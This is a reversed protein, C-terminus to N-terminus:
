ALIAPVATDFLSFIKFPSDFKTEKNKNAPRHVGERVWIVVAPASQVNRLIGHTAPPSARWLRQVFPLLDDQSYTKLLPSFHQNRSAPTGEKEARYLLCSIGWIRQSVPYM